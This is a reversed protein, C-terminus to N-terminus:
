NKKLAKEKEEIIYEKEDITKPSEEFNNIKIKILLETKESIDNGKDCLDQNELSKTDNIKNKKINNNNNNSKHSKTKEILKTLQQHRESGIKKIEDTDYSVGLIEYLTRPEKINM